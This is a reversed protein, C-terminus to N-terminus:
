VSYITPLTLHTYSVPGLNFFAGALNTFFTALGFVSVTEADTKPGLFIINIVSLGYLLLTTISTPVTAKTLTWVTSIWVKAPIKSIAVEDEKEKEIDGMYEANISDRICM